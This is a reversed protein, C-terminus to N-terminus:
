RQRDDDGTDSNGGAGIRWDLGPHVAEIYDVAAVATAGVFRPPCWSGVDSDGEAKGAAAVEDMVGLPPNQPVRADIM